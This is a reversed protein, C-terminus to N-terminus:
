FGAIWSLQSKLNKNRYFDKISIPLDAKMIGHYLSGIPTLFAV